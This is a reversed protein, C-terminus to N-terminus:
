GLLALFRAASEFDARRNAMAHTAEADEGWQETQWLEDLSVAAWATELAVAEEIVGLAAVLSGSITVLPSLGALRFADLARVRQGLRAVTTEPQDVHLLGITVVFDVDFRRRAWALLPDWEAAQRAVLSPPTAARYCFLDAEGYKALAAAFTAPDPSVRDIAANALGT